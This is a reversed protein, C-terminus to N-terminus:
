MEHEPDESAEQVIEYLVYDSTVTASRNVKKYRGDETEVFLKPEHTHKRPEKILSYDDNVTISVFCQNTNLCRWKNKAYPTKTYYHGKYRLLMKNNM